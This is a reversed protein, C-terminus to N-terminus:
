AQGSSEGYVKSPEPIDEERPWITRMRHAEVDTAKSTGGLSFLHLRQDASQPPSARYVRTTLTQGMETFVEVLSHDFLIRLKCSDGSAPLTVPGGIRKVVKEADFTGSTADLNDPAIVQISVLWEFVGQASLGSLETLRKRNLTESSPLRWICLRESRLTPGGGLSFLWKFPIGNHPKPSCISQAECQIGDNCEICPM